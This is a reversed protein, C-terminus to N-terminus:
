CLGHRTFFANVLKVFVPREQTDYVIGPGGYADWAGSRAKRDLVNSITIVFGSLSGDFRASEACHFASLESTVTVREGKSEM